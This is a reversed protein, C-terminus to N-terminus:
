WTTSCARRLRKSPTSTSRRSSCSTRAGASTAPPRSAPRARCKCTSSASTPASRNSCSSRRAATARAHSSKSSRGRKSRAPTRARRSAAARRRRDARDTPEDDRRNRARRCTSRPASATRSSRPSAAAAGRQRVRAAAARAVDLPRHGIRQRGGRFRSGYRDRQDLLPRREGSSGRRRTRRGRQSRHRPSRCERRADAGDDAPMGAREGGSRRAARVRAQRANANAHARSLRARARARRRADDRARPHAARGRASLRDLERARAGSAALACRRAGARERSYQVPLAAGGASALLRLRTELANRELQSRELAFALAQDRALVDRQRVMAGLAIWPAFLLGEVILFMLGTMQAPEHAAHEDIAMSVLHALLVGAPVAVVVGVLQLIWRPLWTPPRAPYHELLGFALVVVLGVVVAHGLTVLIPPAASPLSNLAGFVGSVGVALLVRRWGFLLAVGPRVSVATAAM